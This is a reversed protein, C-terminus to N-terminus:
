ALALEPKDYGLEEPTNVGLEQLTPGIEKLIYPYITKNAAECKEKMAEVFRCALAFDDLRRCAQLAAIMIKPEPVLDMGCLDNMAKRIEWGDIDPRNFYAEYRADFEADTEEKKSSMLRVGTVRAPQVSRSQIGGTQSLLARAATRLMKTTSTSCFNKRVQGM